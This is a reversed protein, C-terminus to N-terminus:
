KSAPTAFTQPSFSKKETIASCLRGWNTDKALKLFDFSKDYSGSRLPLYVAIGHVKGHYREGVSANAVVLNRTIYHMVERAKDHLPLDVSKAAILSMFSFLDRSDADQKFTLANKGAFKIVSLDGSKLAIKAFDDLLKALGELAPAKVASLTFGELKDRTYRETDAEYFAANAAVIHRAFSEASINPSDALKKMIGAYDYGAGPELEESAVIFDAYRAIEYDSAADQMLCADAAYIDLHGIQSLAAGMEVTTIHNGTQTDYSIGALQYEGKRGIDDTLPKNLPFIGSYASRWGTGHNVVILAYHRAPFKAKAWVAFDAMERWDGMDADKKEQMVVTRLRSHEPNRTVFIRKSGSQFDDDDPWNIKGVEAVIAVEETSGVTELQRFNETIVDALGNKASMFVMVTWERTKGTMLPPHAFPDAFQPTPADPLRAAPITGLLTRGSGADNAYVPALGAILAAAAAFAALKRKM